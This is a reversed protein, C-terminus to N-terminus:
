IRELWDQGDEEQTGHFVSPERVRAEAMTEPEIVESDPVVLTEIEGARTNGYSTKLPDTEELVKPPEISSLSLDSPNTDFSEDGEAISKDRFEYHNLASDPFELKRTALRTRCPLLSNTKNSLSM